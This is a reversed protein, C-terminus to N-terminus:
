SANRHYQIGSIDLIVHASIKTQWKLTLMQSGPVTLFASKIRQTGPIHTNVIVNNKMQSKALKIFFTQAIGIAHYLPLISVTLINATVIKLLETQRYLQILIEVIGIVLTQLVMGIMLILVLALVKHILEQIINLQRVIGIVLIIQQHGLILINARVLILMSLKSQTLLIIAHLIALILQQNGLLLGTVIVILTQEQEM